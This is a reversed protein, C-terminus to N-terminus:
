VRSFIMADPDDTTIEGNQLDQGTAAFIFYWHSAVLTTARDPLDAYRAFFADKRRGLDAEGEPMEPWWQTQELLAFDVQPWQQQLTAIPTGIDCSFIAREGALPEAKIPLKIAEAIISATQLARTYPSSILRTIGLTKIHALAAEIQERGLATIPADRIGPDRGTRHMAANFESQGHRIFYM